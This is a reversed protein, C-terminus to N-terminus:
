VYEEAELRAEEESEQESEEPQSVVLELSGGSAETALSVGGSVTQEHAIALQGAGAGKANTQIRGIASQAARRVEHSRLVGETFPRIRQVATVDGVHGLASLISVLTADPYETGDLAALL